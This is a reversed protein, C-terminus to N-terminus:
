NIDDILDKFWRKAKKAKKKLKETDVDIGTGGIGNERQKEKEPIVEPAPDLLVPTPKQTRPKGEPRTWTMTFEGSTGADQPSVIHFRYEGSPSTENLEIAPINWKGTADTSGHTDLIKKGSPDTVSLQLKLASVPKKPLTRDELRRAEHAYAFRNIHWPNNYFGGNVEVTIPSWLKRVETIAKAEDYTVSVKVYEDTAEIVQIRLGSEQDILEGTLDGDKFDEVSPLGDKTLRPASLPTADLVYIDDRHDYAGYEYTLHVGRLEPDLKGKQLGYDQNLLITGAKNRIFNFDKDLAPPRTGALSHNFASAEFRDTPRRYELWIFSNSNGRRIKLAKLNKHISGLAYVKFEGSTDVYELENADRWGLRMLQGFNFLTNSVDGMNNFPHKYHTTTIKETFDPLVKGSEVYIGSGHKLGMSHGMEHILSTRLNQINSRFHVEIGINALTVIGANFPPVKKSLFKELRERASDSATSTYVSDNCPTGIIVHDFEALAGDGLKVRATQLAKPLIDDYSQCSIELGELQARDADNLFPGIIKVEEIHTLGRSATKFYENVSRGDTGGLKEGQFVYDFMDYLRKKGEPVNDPFLTKETRQGPELLIVLVRQPGLSKSGSEQAFSLSVFCSLLLIFVLIVTTSRM